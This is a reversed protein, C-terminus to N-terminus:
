PEHANFANKAQQHGPLSEAGKVEDLKSIGLEGVLAVFWVRAGSLSSQIARVECM